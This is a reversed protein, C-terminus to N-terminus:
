ESSYTTHTKSVEKRTVTKARKGGAPAIGLSSQL